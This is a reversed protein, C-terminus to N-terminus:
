ASKGSPSNNPNQNSYRDVFKQLLTRQEATFSEFQVGMGPTLNKDPVETQVWIVRGKAELTEKSDPLTFTLDVVSGHSLPTKTEIFVGGAGLDRCFDFLYHGNARYDVLLQVPVRHHIRGDKPSSEDGKSQQPATPTAVKKVPKTKNPM